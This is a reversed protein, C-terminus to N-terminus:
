ASPAELWLKFEAALPFSGRFLDRFALQYRLYTVYDDLRSWPVRLSPVGLAVAIQLFVNDIPIHAFQYLSAFGPLRGEGLTFVYKMSMNLWKQAQGVSFRVFGHNRYLHRLQACAAEHWEDFQHQSSIERSPLAKLLKIVCKYASKRLLDANKHKAFGHLTRNLDLYARHVCLQMLDTGQGFYCRVLFDFHEERSPPLYRNNTPQTPRKRKMQVMKIRAAPTPIRLEIPRPSFHRSAQM